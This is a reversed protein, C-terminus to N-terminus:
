RPTASVSSAPHSATKLKHAKAAEAAASAAQGPGSAPAAPAKAPDADAPCAKQQYVTRGDAICKFMQTAAAAGGSSIALAVMATAAALRPSM